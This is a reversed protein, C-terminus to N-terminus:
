RDMRIIAAYHDSQIGGGMGWSFGYCDESGLYEMQPERSGDLCLEQNGECIFDSKVTRADDAQLQIWHAVISGPGKIDCIPVKEQPITPTGTRYEVCLCGTDAPLAKLKEWQIDTYGGFKSETPERGGHPHAQPIADAASLQAIGERPFFLGHQFAGNQGRRGWPFGDV